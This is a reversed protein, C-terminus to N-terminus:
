GHAEDWIQADTEATWIVPDRGDLEDQMRKVNFPLCHEFIPWDGYTPALDDHVADFAAKFSAGRERAASVGDHVGDLFARTQEIARGVADGHVVAGRGPVLARAGLAAVNDLTGSRWDGIHADGMYLAAESEVLDGSFLIREEPLWAAIDGATHGRGLWRLEVTRDGLHLDLRDTFTMTPWTLGPVSEPDEALRPMRRFESEWDDAGREAVLERTLASSVIEGPEFASAGLVRVAHYHTLVLYRIPKDTRRRLEELWPRAATPTARADIAVVADRGIIAGVNPDGEATYALVGEAIEEVTAAKAATDASSAFPKAM